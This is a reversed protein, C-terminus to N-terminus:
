SVTGNSRSEQVMRDWIFLHLIKLITSGGRWANPLRRGSFMMWAIQFEKGKILPCETFSRDNVIDTIQSRVKPDNLWEAMPGLIGTKIKSELISLPLKDRMAYRLIYKSRRHVLSPIPLALCFVQIRWDDIPQHDEIGLALLIKEHVRHGEGQGSFLLSDRFVTPYPDTIPALDAVLFRASGFFEINSRTREVSVFDSPSTVKIEPTHMRGPTSGLLQKCARLSEVGWTVPKLIKIGATEPQKLFDELFRFRGKLGRSIATSLSEHAHFAAIYRRQKLLEIFAARRHYSYGGFFGDGGYGEIINDIGAEKIANYLEYYVHFLASSPTEIIALLARIASYLDGWPMTPRLWEVSHGYMKMLDAVRPAEDIPLGPNTVSFPRVRERLSKDQMLLAFVSSSDMGGSVTVGIPGDIAVVRQKLSDSLLNLLEDSQAKIRKPVVPLHQFPDWWRILKYSGKEWVLYHGPPLRFVGKFPTREDREVNNHRKQYGALAFWDYEWAGAAKAVELLRTGFVFGDKIQAFYIQKSDTRDRGLVVTRQPCDVAAFAWEGHAHLFVSEIRGERHASAAHLLFHSGTDGYVRIDGCLRVGKQDTERFIHNSCNVFSGDEDTTSTPEWPLPRSGPENGCFGLFKKM